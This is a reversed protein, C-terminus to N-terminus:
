LNKYPWVCGYADLLLGWHYEFEWAARHNTATYNWLKEVHSEPIRSINSRSILFQGGAVSPGLYRPVIDPPEFPEFFHQFKKRVDPSVREITTQNVPVNLWNQNPSFTNLFVLIEMFRDPGVGEFLPIRLSYGLDGQLFINFNNLSKREHVLHHLWQSAEQSQNPIKKSKIPKIDCPENNKGPVFRNIGLESTNYVIVNYGLAELNDVYWLNENYSAVVIDIEKPNVKPSWDINQWRKPDHARNLLAPDILAKKSEILDMPVSEIETSNKCSVTEIIKEM